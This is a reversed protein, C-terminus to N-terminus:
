GDKSQNEPVVKVQYGLKTLQDKYDAVAKLYGREFADAVMKTFDYVDKETALYHTTRAIIMEHEGYKEQLLDFLYKKAAYQLMNSGPIM